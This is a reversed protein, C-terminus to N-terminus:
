PIKSELCSSTFFTLKLAWVAPQLISLHTSILGRIAEMGDASWAWSQGGWPIWKKKMMQRNWWFKLRRTSALHHEVADVSFRFITRLILGLCCPGLCPFFPTLDKWWLLYQIPPTRTTYSDRCGTGLVDCPLNSMGTGGPTRSIKFIRRTYHLMQLQAMAM